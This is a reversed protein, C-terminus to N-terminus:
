LSSDFLQHSLNKSYFGGVRGTGAVLVLAAGLLLAAIVISQARLTRRVGRNHVAATALYLLPFVVFQARALCLAGMLLLVGVQRRRTPYAIADVAVVATTLFLPYAYPETLAVNSFVADPVLVAFLAVILGGRSSVGARRALLYAPLAAASFSIA